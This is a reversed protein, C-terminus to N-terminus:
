RISNNDFRRNYQELISRYKDGFLVIEGQNTVIHEMDSDTIFGREKLVTLIRKARETGSVVANIADNGKGGGGVCAMDIHAVCAPSIDLKTAATMLYAAGSNLIYPATMRVNKCACNMIASHIVEADDIYVEAPAYIHVQDEPKPLLMKNVFDNIMRFSLFMTNLYFTWSTSKSEPNVNKTWILIRRMGGDQMNTCNTFQNFVGAREAMPDWSEVGATVHETSVQQKVDFDTYDVIHTEGLEYSQKKPLEDLVTINLDFMSM